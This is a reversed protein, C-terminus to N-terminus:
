PSTRLLPEIFPSKMQRRSLDRYQGASPSQMIARWLGKAHEPYGNAFMSGALYYLDRQLGTESMYERLEKRAEAVRLMDTLTTFQWEADGERISREVQSARYIVSYLLQSMAPAFRGTRYYFWGLKAHAAASPSDEFNYLVLVRDIGKELFNKEVQSRLRINTSDLFRKDDVIILSLADEMRKYLSQMEFLNALKYLVKYQEDPIYFSKRLEYAKEYQAQALDAEGEELYVDGLAEEAEPFIGQNSIAAKYLQLAKGFERQSQAANGQEFLLWNSNSRDQAYAVRCMLALSAVMFGALVQM